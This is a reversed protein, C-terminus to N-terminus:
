LNVVTGLVMDDILCLDPSSVVLFLAYFAAITTVNKQCYIFLVWTNM